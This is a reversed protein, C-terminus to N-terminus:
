ECDMCIFDGEDDSELGVCEEHYWIHCHFCQRMSLPTDESCVPCYWSATSNRAKQTPFKKKKPGTRKNNSSLKKSKSPVQKKKKQDPKKCNDSTFLDANMVQAKYTLSKKRISRKRQIKPTLMLVNFSVNKSSSSPVEKSPTLSPVHVSDELEGTVENLLKQSTGLVPSMSTLSSSTSSSQVGTDDEHFSSTFPGNEHAETTEVISSDLPIPLDGAETDDHFTITSPGYAEEPIVNPDFPYIGTARFGSAINTVTLAQNYAPTCVLGFRAKTIAREPHSRWYKLVECDWFHEFAKFVAKDLPQLEHTTNSPLCMCVIEHQDAVDVISPDIHSSAGDFILLVKGTPKFKGFHHLWEIFLQTTISGKESMKVLSDPPLNDEFEPKLRKGKFIIMPPIAIGVASACAVITVNEAHEPAVLHVRKSGRGALVKQQHHLTLRCGKEDMNFIQRPQNFFSNEEMVGQLKEFYDGVIFKNLKMARGPNMMQAKRKSIEPHRQLYNVVWYRGAVKKRSDFPHKIGNKDCFEYVYSKVLPITIPMGIESFRLIRSTLELENQENLVPYRGLKKSKSGTKLHNRLTRRPIDFRESVSRCSSGSAIANLALQLKEETWTARKVM